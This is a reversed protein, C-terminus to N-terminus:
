SRTSRPEVLLTMGERGVVTVKDGKKLSVGCRANWWEGLVFVRGEGEFDGMAEGTEGIMGEAGTVPKRLQSRVALTIVTTFFVVSAGVMSLLVGWSIRLYPDASTRFLMLSGLLM